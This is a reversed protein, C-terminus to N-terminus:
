APPLVTQPVDVNNVRGSTLFANTLIQASLDVRFRSRTHVASEAEDGVQQKLIAIAAEARALRARLSDLSLTDASRRGSDPPPSQGLAPLACALSLAVILSARFSVLPPRPASVISSRSRAVRWGSELTCWAGGERGTARGNRAVSTPESGRRRRAGRGSFGDAM